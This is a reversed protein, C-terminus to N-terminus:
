TPDDGNQGFAGTPAETGVAALLRDVLRNNEEAQKLSIRIYRESLGAFNGCNRILIRSELLQRAVDVATATKPLRILSFVTSSPFVQLPRSAALRTGIRAREASVWRRTEEVFADLDASPRMLFEVAVQALSNVSWPLAYRRVPALLGPPGILFGIRLGPIRFVKSLSNLVLVNPLARGAMGQAADRCFPLYSEDIVFRVKPHARCIEALTQQPLRVGTPNNPNCIFAMDVRCLRRDMEEPDPVFGEDASLPLAEVEVGAAACADAYDAYSPALILARRAGLARPLDHIFRTTGNAAAVADADFRHRRAFARCCGAADAEPLAQLAQLRDRLHQLLGPPPGLPNVNSSMDVIDAPRCGAIRAAEDINGGHGRIM